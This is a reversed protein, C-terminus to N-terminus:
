GLFVMRRKKNFVSLLQTFARQASQLELKTSSKQTKGKKHAHQSPGATREREMLDGHRM